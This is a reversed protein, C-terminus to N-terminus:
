RAPSSAELAQEDVDVNVDQVEEVERDGLLRAAVAPKAERLEHGRQPLEDRCRVPHGERDALDVGVM